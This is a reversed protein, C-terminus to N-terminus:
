AVEDKFEKGPTFKPVTKEPIDIQKGTSPNRGVRAKRVISHFSGFGVLSVKEGESVTKMIIESFAKLMGETSRNTLGTKGVIAKVLDAKNM